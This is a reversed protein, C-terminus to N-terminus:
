VDIIRAGDATTPRPPMIIWAIVYTILLPAVATMLLVAIYGLRWLTVDGGIYDALGAIVGGLMADEKNRYLKKKM